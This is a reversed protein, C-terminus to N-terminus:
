DRPRPPRPSPRRRSPRSRVPWAPRPISWLHQADAHGGRARVEARSEVRERERQGQKGLELETRRLHPGDGDVAVSLADRRVILVEEDYGRPGRRLDCTALEDRLVHRLTRRDRDRTAEARAGRRDHTAGDGRIRQEAFGEVAAREQPDRALDLSVGVVDGGREVARESDGQGILATRNRRPQHEWAGPPDAQEYGAPWERRLFRAGNKWRLDRAVIRDEVDRVARSEDGGDHTRVAREERERHRVTQMLSRAGLEHGREALDDGRRALSARETRRQRTCSRAHERDRGRPQGRADDRRHLLGGRGRTNRTASTDQAHAGGARLDQFLAAAVGPPDQRVNPTRALARDRHRIDRRGEM